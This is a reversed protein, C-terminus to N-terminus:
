AAIMTAKWSDAKEGFDPCATQSRHDRITPKGTTTRSSTNAAEIAARGAPRRCSARVVKRFQQHADARMCEGIKPQGKQPSGFLSLKRCATASHVWSAVAKSRMINAAAPGSDHKVRKPM